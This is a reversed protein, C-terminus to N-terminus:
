LHAFNQTRSKNEDSIQKCHRCTMGPKCPAGGAAAVTLSIRKLRGLAALAGDGLSSVDFRDDNKLLPRCLRLLEDIETLRSSPTSSALFESSRISRDRPWSNAPPPNPPFCAFNPFIMRSSSPKFIISMNTAALM